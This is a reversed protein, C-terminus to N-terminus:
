QHGGQVEGAQHLGLHILVHCLYYSLMLFLCFSDTKGFYFIQDIITIDCSVKVFVKTGFILDM